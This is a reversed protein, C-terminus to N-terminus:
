PDDHDRPALDFREAAAIACGAVFVVPEIGVHEGVSETGVPV